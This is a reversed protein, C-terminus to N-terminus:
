FFVALEAAVHGIRNFIAEVEELGWRVTEGPKAGVGQQILAAGSGRLAQSSKAGIQLTVPTAM